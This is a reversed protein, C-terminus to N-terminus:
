CANDVPAERSAGTSLAQKGSNPNWACTDDLSAPMLFFLFVFMREQWGSARCWGNQCLLFQTYLSSRREGDVTPARVESYYYISEPIGSLLTTVRVLPPAEVDAKPTLVM